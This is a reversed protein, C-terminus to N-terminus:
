AWWGLVAGYVLGPYGIDIKFLVFINGVSLGIFRWWWGWPAVGDKLFWRRLGGIRFLV